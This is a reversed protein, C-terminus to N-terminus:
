VNINIATIAFQIHIVKRMMTINVIFSLSITISKLSMNAARITIVVTLRKAIVAHLQLM